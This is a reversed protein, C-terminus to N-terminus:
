EGEAGHLQRAEEREEGRFDAAGSRRGMRM